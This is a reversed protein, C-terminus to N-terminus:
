YDVSSVFSEDAQEPETLAETAVNRLRAAREPGVEVPWYTTQAPDQEAIAGYIVCAALFTGAWNPHSGDPRHLRIEPYTLLSRRWAAGVPALRAGMRVSLRRYAGAVSSHMVDVSRLTPHVRYLSDSPHRAWTQYLVTQAGAADVAQKFRLMYAEFEEPREVPDLSHGQLVVHTFQGSKILALARRRQWHRRITFGPRAASRVELAVPSPGSAAIRRILVPMLNFNTYSNGVFLVRLPRVGHEDAARALGASDALMLTALVALLGWGIHTRKSCGQRAECFM